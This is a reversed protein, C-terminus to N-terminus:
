WVMTEWTSDEWMLGIPTEDGLALSLRASCSGMASVAGFARAPAAIEGSARGASIASLARGTAGLSASCVAASVRVIVGM